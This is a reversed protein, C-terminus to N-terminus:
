CAALQAATPQPGPLVWTTTTTPAATTPTTSGTSASPPSAGSGQLGAYDAGTILELSYPTSSLASSETLTAGNALKAALAQAAALAGPAYEIENGTFGYGPTQDTVTTKYGLTAVTSAATAAQGSVGSGNAVEVSVKSPAPAATAAPSSAAADGLTNFATIMQSAQPEALSLADQGDVFYNNTPLTETPIGAVDATRFDEALGIMLTPSFGKDVTLNKTIGGIITNLALPNTFKTEAKKIMKKVFIQQRQIRALDSLGQTIWQGNEYYQYHRSRVFALAQNGTLNVCGAAPVDLNSYYDKAPTPFYFRVGGVADTIDRFTDFNVEIFHNIPIGLDSEVTQILLEGGTNFATNIKSYGIGRINAWLDRPISMLTIKRQAPVIRALMITDSRQGPTQAETGFQANNAGTLARSDSGVILVTFPGSGDVAALAPFSVKNVQGLRYDVYAFAGAGAVLTLAVVINIAVLMRRTWSRRRPIQLGALRDAAQGRAARERRPEAAAPESEAAPPEHRRARKRDARERRQLERLGEM